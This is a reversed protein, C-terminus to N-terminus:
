SRSRLQRDIRALELLLRELSADYEDASVNPKNARLRELESQIEARRRRLRTLEADGTDLIPVDPQLYTIQALPGDAAAPKGAALGGSGAPGPPAAEADADRGVGDGNDDLVPRETALQGREQFWRRVGSGAFVFAEWISVKGNRDFDAETDEFADIFFRPFITEFQQAASDNATLVIRGRGSLRQLFPFSGSATDIFVLRGPLPRVLEAWEAASLDPGVLNFKADGDGGASDATGHGILLILVVDDNTAARRIAELARRVNERTAQRVGEAEKEALVHVHNKPYGLTEQLTHVFSARWADYQDAYQPGGSAGTVILAHRESAAARPADVLWICGILAFSALKVAAGLPTEAGM